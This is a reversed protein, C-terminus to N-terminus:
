QALSQRRGGDAAQKLAAPQLDVQHLKVRIQVDIRSRHRGELMALNEDGVVAGFGIEVKAVVLAEGVGFKRAVVVPSGSSNVLLDDGFLPAAVVQAFGHLYNRVDGVFNFRRHLLDRLFHIDGDDLNAARHAIDLRQGNM